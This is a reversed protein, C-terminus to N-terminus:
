RKQSLIVIRACAEADSLAEHHNLSLGLFRCVDPLKTPYLQWTERALRVTCVFPTAPAELGAAACCAKLVGEDFRSNHAALFDAGRLDQEIDPWLESFTPKGRVDEWSIGHIYTFKFDPRPPRIFHHRKRVIKGGEVRVLGVACASDSGYDATEFDIAVFTQNPLPAAKARAAALKPRGM